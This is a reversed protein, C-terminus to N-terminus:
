WLLGYMVINVICWAVCALAVLNVPTIGSKIVKTKKFGKLCDNCWDYVCPDLIPCFDFPVKISNFTEHYREINGSTPMENNQLGYILKRIPISDERPIYYFDNHYLLYHDYPGELKRPFFVKSFVKNTFKLSLPPDRQYFGKNKGEVIKKFQVDVASVDRPKNAYLNSYDPQSPYRPNDIFETTM